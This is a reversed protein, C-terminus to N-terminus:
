QALRYFRMAGTNTEVVVKDNGSISAATAVNSWLTTTSLARKFELAYNTLAVPWSLMVRNASLLRISLLPLPLVTTTVTASNNGLAPDALDAGVVATNTIAGVTQPVVTLTVTVSGGVAVAGFHGTIPNNNTALSGQTTTAAILNM